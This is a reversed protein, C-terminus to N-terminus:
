GEEGETNAYGSFGLEDYVDELPMDKYNIGAKERGQMEAIRELVEKKTANGKALERSVGLIAESGVTRKLWGWQDSGVIEEAMDEVFKKGEPTSLDIGAARALGEIAKKKIGRYGELSYTKANVLRRMANIEKMETRRQQWEKGTGIPKKGKHFRELPKGTKPNTFQRLYPEAYQTFASKKGKMGAKNWRTIQRNVTEALLRRINVLEDLSLDQLPTELLYPNIKAM